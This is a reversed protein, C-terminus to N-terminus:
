YWRPDGVENGAFGLDLFSFDNHVQDTWLATSTGTYAEMFTKISTTSGDDYDSTYYSRTITMTTGTVIRVGSCPYPTSGFICNKISLGSGTSFVTTNLDIAYRTSASDRAFDNFTCNELNIGDCNTGATYLVLSHRCHNVTSNKILINNITATAASSHILAYNNGSGFAADYILCNNIEVNNIIQNGTVGRLRIISRAIGLINCNNFKVSGIACVYAATSEQDLVGRVRTLPDLNIFGSLNLNEFVLSDSLTLAPDLIFYRNGSTPYITPLNNNALGRIKISKTLTFDGTFGFNEGNRLIIVGGAPLATIAATLDGGAELLVDGEVTFNIKGRSFTGNM